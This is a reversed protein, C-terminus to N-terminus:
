VLEFEENEKAALVEIGTEKQLRKAVIEPDAKYMSEGFHTLIVRDPQISQILKLVDASCLHKLRKGVPASDYPMYTKTRYLM